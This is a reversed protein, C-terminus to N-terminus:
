NLYEAQINRIGDMHHKTSATQSIHVEGPQTSGNTQAQYYALVAMAYLIPMQKKRLGRFELGFKAEHNAIKFKKGDKFEVHTIGGIAEDIQSIAEAVGVKGELCETQIALVDTM